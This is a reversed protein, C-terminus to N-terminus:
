TTVLFALAVALWFVIAVAIGVCEEREENTLQEM